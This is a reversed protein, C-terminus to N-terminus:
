VLRAPNLGDFVAGSRTPLAPAPGPPIQGLTGNARMAAIHQEVIPELAEPPLAHAGPAQSMFANTAGMVAPLKQDGRGAGFVKEAANILPPLVLALLNMM